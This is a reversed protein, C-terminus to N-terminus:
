HFEVGALFAGHLFGSGAGPLWVPCVPGSSLQFRNDIVYNNTHRQLLIEPWHLDDNWAQGGKKLGKKSEYSCFFLFFDQLSLSTSFFPLSFFTIETISLLLLLLTTAAKGQLTVAGLPRLLSPALVMAVNTGAAAARMRMISAPSCLCWPKLTTSSPAPCFTFVAQNQPEVATM